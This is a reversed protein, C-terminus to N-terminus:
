LQGVSIGLAKALRAKSDKRPRKSTELQALAPQTIRMKKAVEAQTMGLYERWARAITWNNDYQLTIVEHPVSDGEPIRPMVPFAKIYERYPIVVFAPKGNEFITQVNIPASM